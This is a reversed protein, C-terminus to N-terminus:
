PSISSASAEKQIRALFNLLDEEHLLRLQYAHPSTYYSFAANSVADLPIQAGLEYNM